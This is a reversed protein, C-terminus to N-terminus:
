LERVSCSECAAARACQLELVEVLHSGPLAASTNEVRTAEARPSTGGHASSSLKLSTADPARSPARGARTPGQVVRMAARLPVSSLRTQAATQGGRVVLGQAGKHPEAILPRQFGRRAGALRWSPVRSAVRGVATLNM